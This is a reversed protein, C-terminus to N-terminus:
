LNAQLFLQRYETHAFCFLQHGTGTLNQFWVGPDQLGSRKLESACPKCFLFEYTRWVLRSYIIRYQLKSDASRIVLPVDAQQSLCRPCSRPIVIKHDAVVVGDLAEYARAYPDAASLFSVGRVSLEAKLALVAEEMLDKQQRSLEQLAHDSMKSYAVRYDM